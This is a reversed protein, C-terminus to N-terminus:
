SNNYAGDGMNYEDVLGWWTSVYTTSGGAPLNVVEVHRFQWWETGEGGNIKNMEDISLSNFKANKLSELTKM